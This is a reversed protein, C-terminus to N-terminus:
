SPDLSCRRQPQRWGVVRQGKQYVASYVDVAKWNEEHIETGIEDSLLDLVNVEDLEAESVTLGADTLRTAYRELSDAFDRELFRSERQMQVTQRALYMAMVKQWSFRTSLHAIQEPLPPETTGLPIADAAAMHAVFASEGHMKAEHPDDFVSRHANGEVLVYEPEFAYFAVQLDDFMRHGPDNTHIGSFWFLQKDGATLHLDRGRYREYPDSGFYRFLLLVPITLLVLLVVLVSRKPIMM